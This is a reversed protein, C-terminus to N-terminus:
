RPRVTLETAKVAAWIEVGPALALDAVAGRTVLACAETPSSLLLRARDGEITVETVTARWVNRSSGAPREPHIVVANPEFAVWVPGDNPEALHLRGGGGVEVETGRAEGAILNIGLLGAVWPTAPHTAVEDPSGQQTLRGAEIVAVRDALARAEVPDHTVLVTTLDIDALMRRVTARSVADLAGLPEDLLLAVPEQALARALAVRQAQGGSLDGPRASAMGGLGVRDLWVSAASRSDRRSRGQCRLGFGVNDTLDLHPFLLQDQFVVGVSRAEPVTFSSTAPEDVVAGGITVQGHDLRTLGAVLRLVTTKGAGNPGLLALTGGPEVTLDVDLALTGREVGGRVALAATM